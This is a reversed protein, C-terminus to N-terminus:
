GNFRGMLITNYYNGDSLLKDKKLIGETEFGYKEYLKIAKENTELVTLTIKKIGNSDAWRISEKLFEKGIGYGWFEKLVCVGFEVKHANRKLKSGACRSFGVIRGDVDAVLFQNNISETDDKIIQKFGSEDIYAEGKERELNETEGDIQLRVESLNKADEEVASRIMYSLGNIYCEKQNVIM